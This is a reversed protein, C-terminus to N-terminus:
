TWVAPLVAGWTYRQTASIEVAMIWIHVLRWTHPLIYYFDYECFQKEKISNPAGNKMHFHFGWESTFSIFHYAWAHKALSTLFYFNILMYLASVIFEIAEAWRINVVMQLSLINSYFRLIIHTWKEYFFPAVTRQKLFPPKKESFPTMHDHVIMKAFTHRQTWDSFRLCTWLMNYLGSAYAASCYWSQPVYVNEYNYSVMEELFLQAIKWFNFCDKISFWKHWIIM